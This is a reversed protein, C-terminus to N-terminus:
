SQGLEKAGMQAMWDGFRRCPEAQSCIDVWPALYGWGPKPEFRRLLVPERMLNCKICRRKPERKKETNVLTVKSM